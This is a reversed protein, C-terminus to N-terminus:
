RSWICFFTCFYRNNVGEVGKFSLSKVAPSKVKVMHPIKTSNQYWFKPAPNRAKWEGGHLRMKELQATNWGNKKTKSM